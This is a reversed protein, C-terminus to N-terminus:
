VINVSEVLGVRALLPFPGFGVVGVSSAAANGVRGVPVVRCEVSRQAIVSSDAALQQACSLLLISVADISFFSFTM